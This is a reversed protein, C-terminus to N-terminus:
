PQTSASLQRRIGDADVLSWVSEIRNARFGYFVHEAFSVRRGRADIGLFERQPTCDFWLRCAVQDAGVVLLTIEYRLDPVRRVDDALLAQYQDLSWQQGNYTLHDHVFQGLDDLRRENLTAIYDRYTRELQDSVSAGPDTPEVFFAGGANHAGSLTTRTSCTEDSGTGQGRPGAL